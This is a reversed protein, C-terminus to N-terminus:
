KRMHLIKGTYDLPFWTIPWKCHCHHHSRMLRPRVCLRCLCLICHSSAMSCHGHPSECYKQSSIRHSRFDVSAHYWHRWSLLISSLMAGTSSHLLPDPILSVVSDYHANRAYLVARLSKTFSSRRHQQWYSKSVQFFLKAKPTSTHGLTPGCQFGIFACLLYVPVEYITAAELIEIRMGWRNPLLMCQQYHTCEDGVHGWVPHAELVAVHVWFLIKWTDLGQQLLLRPLCEKSLDSRSQATSVSM